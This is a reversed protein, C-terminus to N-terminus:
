APHPNAGTHKLINYHGRLSLLTSLWIAVYPSMVKMLRPPPAVRFIPSGSGLALHSPYRFGVVTTVHVPSSQVSAYARACFRWLKYIPRRDSHVLKGRRNSSSYARPTRDVPSYSLPLPQGDQSAPALAFTSMFVGLSVHLGPRATGSPGQRGLLGSRTMSIKLLGLRRPVQNLSRHPATQTSCDQM